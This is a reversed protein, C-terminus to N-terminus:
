GAQLIADARRSFQQVTDVNLMDNGDARAIAEAETLGHNRWRDILRVRLVDHPVCLMVTLDFLAFLDCWVPQQLLVYNGEVVVIRTEATVLGADPVTRDAVRDFTPYRMPKSAQLAKILRLFGVVDFTEPAGKQSLLGRDALVSNDLHFGDMPVLAAPLSLAGVVHEAVTSKGAGPPGAIGVLTRQAEESMTQIRDVLHSLTIQAM